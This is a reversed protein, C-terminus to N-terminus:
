TTRKSGLIQDFGGSWAPSAANRAFKDGSYAQSVTAYKATEVQLREAAAKRLAAAAEDFTTVMNDRNDM